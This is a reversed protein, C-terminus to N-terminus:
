SFSCEFASITESMRRTKKVLQQHYDMNIYQCSGCRKSIDCKM